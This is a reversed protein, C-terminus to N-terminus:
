EIECVSLEFFLTTSSICLCLISNEEQIVIERDMGMGVPNDDDEPLILEKFLNESYSVRYWLCVLIV